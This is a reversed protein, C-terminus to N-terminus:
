YYERFFFTHIVHLTDRQVFIYQFHINSVFISFIITICLFYILTFDFLRALSLTISPKLIHRSVLKFTNIMLQGVTCVGYKSQQQDISKCTYYHTCVVSDTNHKKSLNFILYRSSQRSAKFQKSLTRTIWIAILKERKVSSSKTHFAVIGGIGYNERRLNGIIGCQLM